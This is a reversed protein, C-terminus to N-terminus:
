KMSEVAADITGRLQEVYLALLQRADAPSFVLPDARLAIGLRRGYIGIMFAARTNPRVPPVGFIGELILNGAVIKGSERPFRVGLHRTIEGLNSLVATAFCRRMSMYLPIAGPIHEMLCFGRLFMLSRRRCTAADTEGHIGQLLKQANDCENPHRTVFTYSVGNAASLREGSGTKLNVPIAIRLWSASSTSPHKMTWQRLTQFM